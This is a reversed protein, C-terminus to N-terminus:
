VKIFYIYIIKFKVRSFFRALIALNAGQSSFSIVKDINESKVIRILEKLRILHKFRGIQNDKYVTIDSDLSYKINDLENHNYIWLVRKVGPLPVMELINSLMRQTGGSRFSFIIFLINM